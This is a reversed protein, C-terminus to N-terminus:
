DRPSPSTYLLCPGALAALLLVADRLLTLVFFSSFAGLAVLGATARWGGGRRLGLPLLVAGAALLAALAGAVWPWPALAPVLRLAVYAHLLISFALLLPRSM